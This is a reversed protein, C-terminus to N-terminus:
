EGALLVNEKRLAAVDAPSLEKCCANAFTEELAPNALTAIPSFPHGNKNISKSEYVIRNRGKSDRRIEVVKRLQECKAGASYYGGVRIQNKHIPM